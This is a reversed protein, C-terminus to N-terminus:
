CARSCRKPSRCRRRIWSRRSRPSSIGREGRAGAARHGGAPRRRHDDDARPGHEAPGQGEPPRPCHGGRSECRPAALADDRRDAPQHDRPDAHRPAATFSVDGVFELSDGITLGLEIPYAQGGVRQGTVVQPDSGETLLVIPFYAYAQDGGAGTPLPTLVGVGITSTTGSDDPPLVVHVYSAAGSPRVPYWDRGAVATPTLGGVLDRLVAMLRARRAPIAKLNAQAQPFWSLEFLLSDGGRDGPALLGTLLGLDRLLPAIEDVAFEVEDAM